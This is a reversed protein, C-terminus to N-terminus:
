PAVRVRQFSFKGRPKTSPDIKYLGNNRANCTYKSIRSKKEM